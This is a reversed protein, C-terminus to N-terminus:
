EDRSKNQQSLDPESHQEARRSVEIKPSTQDDNQAAKRIAGLFQQQNQQAMRDSYMQKKGFLSEMLSKCVEPSENSPALPNKQQTPSSALFDQKQHISQTEDNKQDENILPTCPNGRELRMSSMSQTLQVM